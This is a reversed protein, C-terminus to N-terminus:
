LTFFVAAVAAMGVLAGLPKQSSAGSTGTSGTTSGSITASAGGIPNNGSTGTIQVTAASQVGSANPVSNAGTGIEMITSGQSNFNTQALSIQNNAIDYVVYASRLFTDGLTYSVGGGSTPTQEFIGFTCGQPGSGDQTLGGQLVMESLPVSIGVGSFEFNITQTSNALSCACFAQQQMKNYTVSLASYINQTLKVPLYSLTSGSDLLVGTPLETTTVSTNTSGDILSVGTLALVMELYQGAEQQIPLTQLSGHYKQTDVGGFLISGTSSALDDLWLSYANSQILGQNAMSQPINAYSQGAANQVEAELAPYGIGMVGESSSSIYGIGMQQNNVTAGGIVVKDSVYDGQSSSSDAYQIQFNSNIYKYTSSANASYTGGVSCPVGGNNIVQQAPEQCLKSTAVNVWM